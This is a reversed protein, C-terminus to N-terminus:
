VRSDLLVVTNNSKRAIKEIKANQQKQCAELKNSLCSAIESIEQNNLCVNPRIILLYFFVHWNFNSAQNTGSWIHHWFQKKTSHTFTM